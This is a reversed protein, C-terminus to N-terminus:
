KRGGVANPLHQVSADVLTKGASCAQVARVTGDVTKLGTYATTKIAVTGLSKVANAMGIGVAAAETVRAAADGVEYGETVGKCVHGGTTVGVSSVPVFHYRCYKDGCHGCAETAGNCMHKFAVTTTCAQAHNAFQQAGGAALGAGAVALVGGGSAVVAGAAGVVYMGQGTANGVVAGATHGECVHGGITEGIHDVQRSHYQCFNYSCTGCKSVGGTCNQRFHPSTECFVECIHGGQVKGYGAQQNHYQCYQLKCGPCISLTGSCMHKTVSATQCQPGACNSHGGKM